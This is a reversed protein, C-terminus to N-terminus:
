TFIVEVSELQWDGAMADPATRAFQLKVPNGAAMNLLGIAISATAASLVMDDNAGFALAGLTQDASWSPAGGIMTNGRVVATVAAATGSGSSQVRFSVRTAGSPVQVTRGMGQPTTAAFAAVVMFPSGSHVVLTAPEQLAPAIWAASAFEMTDARIFESAPLFGGANTIVQTGMNIPGSMTGGTLALAAVQAATVSHPNNTLTPHAVITAEVNFTLNASLDGGGTLGSGATVSRTEVVVPIGAVELASVANVVGAATITLRTNTGVAVAAGINRTGSDSQDIGFSWDQQAISTLVLAPDAGTTNIKIRVDSSGGEVTIAGANFIAQTDMDIPGTMVGGALLLFAAGDITVDNGAEVTVIGGIGQLGRFPLDVGSKTLIISQNAGAYSYTNAEGGGGGGLLSTWVDNNPNAGVNLYVNSNVGGQLFYIDGPDGLVVTGNPGGARNGIFFQIDGPFDGAPRRWNMFSSIDGLNDGGTGGDNTFRLTAGADASNYNVSVSEPAALLVDGDVSEIAVADQGQLVLDNNQATITVGAVGTMALVGASAAIDLRNATAIIQNLVAGFTITSSETNGDYQITLQPTGGFARLEIASNEPAANPTLHILANGAGEDLIILDKNIFAGSGNTAIAANAVTGPAVGGGGGANTVADTLDNIADSWARVRAQTSEGPVTKRVPPFTSTSLIIVLREFVQVQSAPSGDGATQVTCRILYSHISSAPPEVPAPMNIKITDNIGNPVPGLVIAPQGNENWTILPAAKSAVPSSSNDADFVEFRASLAVSPNQELTVSLLESNLAIYVQDGTVPDTSPSENITFFAQAQDNSAM